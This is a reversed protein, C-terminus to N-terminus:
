YLRQVRVGWCLTPSACRSAAHMCCRQGVLLLVHMHLCPPRTIRAGLMCLDRARAPQVGRLAVSALYRQLPPSPRPSVTGPTGPSLGRARRSLPEVFDSLFKGASRFDQMLRPVEHLSALEELVQSHVESAHYAPFAHQPSSALVEAPGQLVRAGHEHLNTLVM